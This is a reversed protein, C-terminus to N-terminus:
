HTSDVVCAKKRAHVVHATGTILRGVVILRGTRRGQKRHEVGVSQRQLAVWSRTYTRLYSYCNNINVDPYGTSSVKGSGTFRIEKICVPKIRRRTSTVSGFTSDEEAFQWRM